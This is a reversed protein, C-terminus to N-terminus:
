VILVCIYMYRVKVGQRELRSVAEWFPDFLLDGTLSRVSFQVYPYQLATFLGRVMFVMMTKALGEDAQEKESLQSEFALLHTNVDGLNAFGILSGEHKEFM